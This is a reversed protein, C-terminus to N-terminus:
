LQEPAIRVLPPSFQASACNFRSSQRQTMIVNLSCAATLASLFRKELAQALESVLGHEAEWLGMYM